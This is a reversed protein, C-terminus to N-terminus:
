PLRALFESFSRPIEGALVRMWAFEIFWANLAARTHVIHDGDQYYGFGQAGVRFHVEYGNALARLDQADWQAVRPCGLSPAEHNRRTVGAAAEILSEIWCAVSEEAVETRKEEPVDPFAWQAQREFEAMEAADSAVEREFFAHFLEHYVAGVCGAHTWLREMLLLGGTAPDRFSENLTIVGHRYRALAGDGTDGFEIATEGVRIVYSTPFGYAAASRLFPELSGGGRPAASSGPIQFWVLALLAYALRHVRRM